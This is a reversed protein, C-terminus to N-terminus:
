IEPTKNRQKFEREQKLLRNHRLGTRVAVALILFLTVGYAPWIYAGYGNMNLFEEM